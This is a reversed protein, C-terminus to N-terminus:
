AEWTSQTYFTADELPTCTKADEALPGIHAFATDLALGSEQITWSARKTAHNAATAVDRTLTGSPTIHAPGRFTTTPSTAPTTRPRDRDLSAMSSRRAGTGFEPPRPVQQGMNPSRTPTVAKAINPAVQLDRVNPVPGWYRHLSPHVHAPPWQAHRTPWRKYPRNPEPLHATSPHPQRKVPARHLLYPRPLVSVPQFTHGNELSTLKLV